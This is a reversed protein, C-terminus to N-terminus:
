AASDAADAPTFDFELQPADSWLQEFWRWRERPYLGRWDLPWRQQAADDWSALAADRCLSIRTRIPRQPANGDGALARTNHACM